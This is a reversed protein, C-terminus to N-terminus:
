YALLTPQTLICSSLYVVCQWETDIVAQHGSHLIHTHLSPAAQSAYSVKRPDKGLRGPGLVVSEGPNPPAKLLDVIMCACMRHIHSLVTCLVTMRAENFSPFPLFSLPAQAIIENSLQGWALMRRRARLCSSLQHIVDDRGPQGETLGSLAQEAGGWCLPASGRQTAQSLLAGGTGSIIHRYMGPLQCRVLSSLSLLRHVIPRGIHRIGLKEM